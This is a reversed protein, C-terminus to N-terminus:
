LFLKLIGFIFNLAKFILNMAFYAFVVGLASVVLTLIPTPLWSFLSTIITLFSALSTIVSSM